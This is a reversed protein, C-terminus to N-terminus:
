VVLVEEELTINFKRKVSQKIKQSLHAIEIGKANGYNILVLSHKKYVGYNNNTYGKWHLKEILWAAPIKIKKDTQFFPIKPYTEKLKQLKKLTIIPNKFFSGANGIKKPNPLKSNRIDIVIKRIKRSTLQNLKILNIKEKLSKYDINLKKKKSLNIKIKTIIYQEKLQKKFISNRYGFQCEKRNFTKLKHTTLNIARLEKFM